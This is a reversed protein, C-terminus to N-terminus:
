CFSNSWIRQRDILQRRLTRRCLKTSSTDTSLTKDVFYRDIFCAASLHYAIRETYYHKLYWLTVCLLNKPSLYPIYTSTHHQKRNTCYEVPTQECFSVYPAFTWNHKLRIFMQQVSCKAILQHSM